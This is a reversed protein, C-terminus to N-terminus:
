PVLVFENTKCPSSTSQSLKLYYSGPLCGNWKCPCLKWTMELNSVSSSSLWNTNSGVFSVYM